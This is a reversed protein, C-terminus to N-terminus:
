QLDGNVRIRFSHAYKCPKESPLNIHLGTADRSWELDGPAGLMEVSAIGGSAIKEGEYLTKITLKGGDPWDLVIAYLENGKRTFRIDEASTNRFHWRPHENRREILKEEDGEAHIRWPRTGHIADGNVKLWEGMALLIDQQGRPLTGDAMPALSLLLGGGRSVRDVLGDIVRSPDRYSIDTKYGWASESISMDDIWPRDVKAPRDRGQEYTLVGFERPFNFKMSTPLKNLVEVQKGWEEGKNLYYALISTVDKEAGEEQFKGGDFWLVDPRYKDTVERVKAKWVEIFEEYTSTSENWYFDKYEPDFLDWGERKGREVDEPRRPLFWNFTRIHHFTAIVKLERARLEKVLDGYLDRKPGMKGANWRNVESDWLGFGDHHVVAIGAYRAGSRAIVDAWAAPDFNEVKFQPVFERYGMKAPGGYKKMHHSFVGRRDTPDYMEKGYWETAFAPVSYVGWHAYIGFKADMLWEPVPHQTLSQWNPEYQKAPAPEDGAPACAMLLLLCFIAGLTKLIM